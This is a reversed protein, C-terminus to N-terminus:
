STQLVLLYLRCNQSKPAGVFHVDKPFFPYKTSPLTGTMPETVGQAQQTFRLVALLLKQETNARCKMRSGQAGTYTRSLMIPCAGLLHCILPGHIICPCGTLDSFLLKFKILKVRGTSTESSFPVSQSHLNTGSFVINGVPLM